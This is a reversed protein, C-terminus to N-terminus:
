LDLCLRTYLLKNYGHSRTSRNLTYVTMEKHWAYIDDANGEAMNVENFLEWCLINSSYGYRSVLYRIYKKVDKQARADTFFESPTDLYGNETASNFSFDHWNRDHEGGRRSNVNTHNFLVM